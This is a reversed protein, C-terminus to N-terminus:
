YKWLKQIKQKNQNNELIFLYLGAAKGSLNLELEEVNNLKGNQISLGTTNLIQYSEAKFNQSLKINFIGNSPNPYIVIDEENEASESVIEASLRASSAVLNVSYDETEGSFNEMCGLVAGSGNKVMVVRLGAQGATANTPINFNFNYTNATNITAPGFVKEGADSFNGNRNFDIFVSYTQNRAAGAFGASIQGQNNSSGITLNSSLGTNVFGGLEAGSVRNITGIKFLDIWEYSNNGASACTNTNFLYDSTFASTGSTCNAKVKVQYTTNATLNTKTISNTQVNNDIFWNSRNTAKYYFTYSNANSVADWTLTALRNGIYSTTLNTPVGCGVIPLTNFSGDTSFASSGSNCNTKVHWLYTRNDGLSAFNISTNSTTTTAWTTATSVKYEVTYNVAGLVGAWSITASNSTINTALNTTPTLCSAAMTRFQTIVPNSNFYACTQNVCWEYDTDPLLNPINLTFGQTHGLTTWPDNTGAKRYGAVFDSVTTKYGPAAIWNATASNTTINTTSPNIAEPCPTTMTSATYNGITTGCNTIVRWDLALSQMLGTFQFSSGSPVNVSLAHNPWVSIPYKLELTYSTAGIVPDWSFSSVDNAYSFQLNTPADCQALTFDSKFLFFILCFITLAQKM